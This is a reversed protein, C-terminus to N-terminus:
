GASVHSAKPSGNKPILRELQMLLIAQEGFEVAARSYTKDVLVRLHRSLFFFSNTLQRNRKTASYRVIDRSFARFRSSDLVPPPTKDEYPIQAYKPFAFSITDTHFRRDVLMEAPLAFLFFPLSSASQTLAIYMPGEGFSVMLWSAAVAQVFTGIDSVLDAILLNRFQSVRLLRQASADGFTIARADESLKEM